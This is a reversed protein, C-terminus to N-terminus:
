QQDNGKWNYFDETSTPDLITGYYNPATCYHGTVRDKFFVSWDTDNIFFWLAQGQRAVGAFALVLEKDETQKILEEYTPICFIGGGQQANLTTNLAVSAVILSALFTTIKKVSTMVHGKLLHSPPWEVRATM